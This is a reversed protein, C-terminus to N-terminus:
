KGEYFVQHYTNQTATASDGDEKNSNTKSENLNWNEADEIELKILHEAHKPSMM